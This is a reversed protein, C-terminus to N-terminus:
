KFRNRLSGRPSKKAGIRPVEGSNKKLLWGCSALAGACRELPKEGKMCCVLGRQQQDAVAAELLGFFLRALESGPDDAAMFASGVLYASVKASALPQCRGAIAIGSETILIRGAPVRDVLGLTTELRTEFTRLDRNNIGILPHRLALARECSTPMTASSWSTWERAGHALRELERLERMRPRTRRHAPHLGRGLRAGRRVQYPDVIFDKRLVPLAARRARASRPRRALRRLVRPRHAGFPLGRRQGRLVRRHAGSRLRRPDLGQSPSARKIEAIVAPRARPSRPQAARARLRAAALERRAGSAGRRRPDRRKASAEVERRKAALIKSCSTPCTLGGERFRAHVHVLQDLKARAAGSAIADRALAVGDWLSAPWGRSTSRRPPM